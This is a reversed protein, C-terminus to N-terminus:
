LGLAFNEHSTSSNLYFETKLSMCDLAIREKPDKRLLSQILDKADESLHNPLEFDALIVRNLTSKVAKTDFPPKGVLFTYLMCGLSWLDAELGHASRMAIERNSIFKNSDMLNM